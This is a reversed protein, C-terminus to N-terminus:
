LSLSPNKVQCIPVDSERKVSLGKVEPIVRAQRGRSAPISVMAM